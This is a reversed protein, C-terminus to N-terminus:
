HMPGISAAHVRQFQPSDPQISYRAVHSDRQGRAPNGAPSLDPSRKEARTRWSDRACRKCRTRLQGLIADGPKVSHPLISGNLLSQGHGVADKEHLTARSAASTQVDSHLIQPPLDNALVAPAAQNGTIRGRTAGLLWIWGVRQQPTGLLQKTLYRLALNTLSEHAWALRFRVPRLRSAEKGPESLRDLEQRRGCTPSIPPPLGPSCLSPSPFGPAIEVARM